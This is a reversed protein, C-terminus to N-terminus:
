MGSPLKVGFREAVARLNRVTGEPLPIGDRLREAHVNDEPEGPVLVEKVGEAPPLGGTVKAIFALLRTAVWTSSDDTNIVQYELKGAIENELMKINSFYVLSAIVVSSTIVISLILVTLKTAFKM